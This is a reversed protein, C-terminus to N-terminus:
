VLIRVNLLLGGGRGGGFNNIVRLGLGFCCVWDYSLLVYWIWGFLDLFRLSIRILLVRLGEFFGSNGEICGDVFSLENDEWFEVRLESLFLANSFPSVESFSTFLFAFQADFSSTICSLLKSDFNLYLSHNMVFLASNSICYDPCNM